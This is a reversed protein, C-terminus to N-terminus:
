AKMETFTRKREINKYHESTRSLIGNQQCRSLMRIEVESDNFFMVSYTGIEGEKM